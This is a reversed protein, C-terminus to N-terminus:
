PKEGPTGALVELGAPTIQYPEGRKGEVVWGARLIRRISDGVADLGLKLYSRISKQNTAAPYDRMATLVQLDTSRNTAEVTAARERYLDEVTRPDREIVCSTVPQGREDLELIDVRRRILYLPAPREVDRVKHATLKLSAEGREADYEGLELYLTADANGRWASSGRERKRKNEGDQWGAHHVLICAAGPITAMIRRVARLYASVHESSDESGSLSARVTDIVLLVIAPRGAAALRASLERLAETVVYEGISYEEVGDRGIRPSLPDSARVLYLNELRHGGHEVLARLRLGLADGEFSLYPVSGSRVSRGLWRVDDSVAASISLTAFTKGAGSESVVVTICGAWAVGEVIEASRPTAIMEAATRFSLAHSPAPAPAPASSPGAHLPDDCADRHCHPCTGDPAATWVDVPATM